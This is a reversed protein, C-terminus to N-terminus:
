HEFFRFKNKGANKAEYLARDASNFIDDTSKISHVFQVGISVTMALDQNNINWPKRVAETIREAVKVADIKDHTELLLAFEDGGVRALVDGKRICNSLRDCLEQLLNDGAEHGMQDNITKFNDCDILMLAFRSGHQEFRKLAAQLRQELLRRNSVGTLPDYFAM